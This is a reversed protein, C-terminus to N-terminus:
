RPEGSCVRRCRGERPTSCVDASRVAPCWLGSADSVFSGGGGRIVTIQTDPIPDATGERVVMGQITGFGAPQQQPVQILLAFLLFLTRTM